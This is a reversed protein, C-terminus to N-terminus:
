GWHGLRGAGVQKWVARAAGAASGLAMDVPARVVAPARKYGIYGATLLFLLLGLWLLRRDHKEQKQITGLLKAGKKNLQKQGVFEDKAQGLTNNSSDLVAMTAGTQDIQQTLLARARQLSETVESTAQVAEAVSKYERQLVPLSAGAFLERRQQEATQQQQRKAQGKAAAIGAALRTYEAQHLEVCAEVADTHEDTDQEEALLEFDRIQGRVSSLLEQLQKDTVAPANASSAASNAIRDTAVQIDRELKLLQQHVQLEDPGFLSVDAGAALSAVSM